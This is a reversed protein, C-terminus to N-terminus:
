RIMSSEIESLIGKVIVKGASDEAVGTQEVVKVTFERLAQNRAKKSPIYLIEGFLKGAIDQVKKRLNEDSFSLIKAPYPKIPELKERLEKQLEIIEKIDRHAHNMAQLIVDEKLVSARGEIMIVNEMSGTVVLELDSEELQSHFPNIMFQGDKYGVKVGAIPSEVPLGSLYFAATSGILAPIDSGNEQDTSLVTVMIQIENQFGKPIQPRISRDILRSTLIETETPRGERKFFGGPIKGAAYTKERYEVTLPVFDLPEERSAGIVIAALVETDGYRVRVSADAQKAMLGVQLTLERGAIMRKVEIM